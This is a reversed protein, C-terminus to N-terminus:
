QLSNIDTIDVGTYYHKLIEEYTSGNQAMFQAGRQSMGVGHGYGTTIIELTDEDKEEIRFNASKLSFIERFETGKLVIGCVDINRVRGGVTYDIIKLGEPLDEERINFAGYRGRLREIFAKKSIEVRSTYEKGTEDGRSEVSVHYPQYEGAWVETADETRGGGNAHYLPCIPMGNYTLIMGRTENVARIIKNWYFYASILGWKKYAEDRSIWAQCCTAESCLDVDPHEDKKEQSTIKAYAYSRAAVAQAKLAETEFAAPMEAAVVGRLYEELEMEEVRNERKVLLKVSVRPSEEEETIDPPKVNNVSCGKVILMPFIIILVVFVSLYYTIYKM